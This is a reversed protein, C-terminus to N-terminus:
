VPFGLECCTKQCLKKKKRDKKCNKKCKSMNAPKKNCKSKKIKCKRADTLGRCNIEPPPASPPLSDCLGCTKKCKQPQKKCNVSKNKKCKKITDVCPSPSSSPPPSLSPSPPHV